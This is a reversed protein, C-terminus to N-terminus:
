PATRIQFYGEGLQALQWPSRVLLPVLKTSTSIEFHLRHPRASRSLPGSMRVYGIVCVPATTEPHHTFHGGRVGGVSGTVM